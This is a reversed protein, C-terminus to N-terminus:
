ARAILHMPDDDKRGDLHRVRRMDGSPRYIVIRDQDWTEASMLGSMIEEVYRGNDLMPEVRTRYYGTSAIHPNQSWQWTRVVPVGALDYPELELFMHNHYSELDTNIYLRVVDVLGQLVIRQLDGMPTSGCLMLDHEVFMILPTQVMPLALCLTGAQHVFEAACVMRTRTWTTSCLTLLRRLYEAYTEAYREQSEHVGDCCIIIEAEPLRQRISGITQEIILTEPHSIIPSTSVLVTIDSM